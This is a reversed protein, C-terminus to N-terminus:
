EQAAIDPNSEGNDAVDHGQVARQANDLALMLVLVRRRPPIKNLLREIQDIVPVRPKSSM